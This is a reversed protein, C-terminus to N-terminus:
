VQPNDFVIRQCAAALTSIFNSGAFDYGSIKRQNVRAQYIADIAFNAGIASPKATARFDIEQDVIVYNIMDIIGLDNAACIWDVDAEPTLSPAGNLVNIAIGSAHGDDAGISAWYRNRDNTGSAFASASNDWWYIITAGDVAGLKNKDTNYVYVDATSLGHCANMLLPAYLGPSTRERYFIQNKALPLNAPDSRSAAAYRYGPFDYNVTIVKKQFHGSLILENTYPVFTAISEGPARRM